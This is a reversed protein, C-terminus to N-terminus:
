NKIWSYDITVKLNKWSDYKDLPLNLNSCLPNYFTSLAGETIASYYQNSLSVNTDVMRVTDKMINAQRDVEVAITVTENGLIQIGARPNFCNRLQKSFIDIEQATLPVPNYNFDGADCGEINKKEYKIGASTFCNIIRNNEKEIEAKIRKNEKEIEDKKEESILDIIKKEKQLSELIQDTSQKLLSIQTDTSLDYAVQTTSYKTQITNIAPLFNDKIFNYCTISDNLRSQYGSISSLDSLRYSGRLKSLNSRLSLDIVTDFITFYNNCSTELELNTEVFLKRAKEENTLASVNLAYFAFILIVLFKIKM